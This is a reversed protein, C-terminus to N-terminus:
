HHRWQAATEIDLWLQAFMWKTFAFWKADFSKEIAKREDIGRLKIIHVVFGDAIAWYFCINVNPFQLIATHFELQLPFTSYRIIERWLQQCQRPEVAERKM